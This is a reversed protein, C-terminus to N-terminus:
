LKLKDFLFIIAQNAQEVYKVFADVNFITRGAYEVEQEKTYDITFVHALVNRLGFIRRLIKHINPPLDIIEKLMSLKQFPPIHALVKDYLMRYRKIRGFYKINKWKPSDQLVYDMIILSMAEEIMLCDFLVRSRILTDREMQLTTIRNTHADGKFKYAIDKILEIEEQLKKEKKSLNM